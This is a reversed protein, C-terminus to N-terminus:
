PLPMLTIQYIHLTGAIKNDFRESAHREVRVELAEVGPPVQFDLTVWSRPVSGTVQPTEVSLRRPNTPDFARFFPGQDTTIGQTTIEASLRYRGPSVTACQHIQDFNVNETGSFRVWLGNRRSMEVSPLAALTWDFPSGNPENQFRTNALRQPHLYGDRNPGLWDAWLDQATRFSKRQWLTWALDVASQQGGLGNGRMWSWTQLLDQDSGYVRLPTLWFQAGRDTAPVATGLVSSVSVGSHTLFFFLNEDFADTQGIIRHAMQLGHATRGHTFDFNAARMLIPSKGPGLSIAHDFVAAAQQTRGQASILEAYTCWVMPNSPDENVLAAVDTVVDGSGAQVAFLQDLRCFGSRCYWSDPSVHTHDLLIALAAIAFGAIPFIMRM